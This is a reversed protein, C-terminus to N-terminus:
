RHITTSAYYKVSAIRDADTIRYRLIKWPDIRCKRKRKTARLDRTWALETEWECKKDKETKALAKKWKTQIDRRRRDSHIQVEEQGREGHRRRRCNRELTTVYAVLDSIFSSVLHRDDSASCSSIAAFLIRGGPFRDSGVWKRGDSSSYLTRLVVGYLM